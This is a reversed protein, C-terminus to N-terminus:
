CFTPLGPPPYRDDDGYTHPYFPEDDHDPEDDEVPEPQEPSCEENGTATHFWPFQEVPDYTQTVGAGCHECRGSTEVSSPVPSATTTTNM